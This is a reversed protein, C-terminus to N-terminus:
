NRKPPSAPSHPGTIMHKSNLFVLIRIDGPDLIDKVLVRDLFIIKGTQKVDERGSSSSAGGRSTGSTRPSITLELFLDPRNPYAGGLVM